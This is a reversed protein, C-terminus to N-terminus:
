VGPINAPLSIDNADLRGLDQAMRRQQNPSPQGNEDVDVWHGIVREVDRDLTARARRWGAAWVLWTQVQTAQADSFRTGDDLTSLVGALRARAASPRAPSEALMARLLAARAQLVALVPPHEAAARMRTVLAEESWDEDFRADVEGLEQYLDRLLGVQREQGKPIPACAETACGETCRASNWSRAERVWNAEAERIRAELALRHDLEAQLRAVEDLSNAHVEEAAGRQGPMLENSSLGLQLRGVAAKQDRLRALQTPVSPTDAAALAQARLRARALSATAAVPGADVACSPPVDVLANKGQCRRVDVSVEDRVSSLALRTSETLDPAVLATGATADRWSARACTEPTLGGASATLSLLILFM